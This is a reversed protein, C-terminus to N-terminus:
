NAAPVQERMAAEFVAAIWDNVEADIVVSWDGEYNQKVFHRIWQSPALSQMDRALRDPAFAFPLRLRDPFRM